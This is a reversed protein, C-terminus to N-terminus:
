PPVATFVSEEFECDGTETEGYLRGNIIEGPLMTDFDNFAEPMGSGFVGKLFRLAM